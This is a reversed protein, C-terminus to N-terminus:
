RDNCRGPSHTYPLPQPAAGQARPHQGERPGTGIEKGRRTVSDTGTCDWLSSLSNKCLAQMGTSIDRPQPPHQAKKPHPFLARLPQWVIQDGSQPHAARPNCWTRSQFHFSANPICLLGPMQQPSPPWAPCTHPAPAPDCGLPAKM